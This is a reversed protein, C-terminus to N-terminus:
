AAACHLHLHVVGSTFIRTEALALFVRREVGPSPLSLPIGGGASSLRLVM